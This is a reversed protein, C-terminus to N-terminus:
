CSESGRCYTGTTTPSLQPSILGHSEDVEVAMLEHPRQDDSEDGDM